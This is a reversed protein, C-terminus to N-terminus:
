DQHRNPRPDFIATQTTEKRVADFFGCWPFEGLGGFILEPLEQTETLTSGVLRMHHISISLGNVPQSCAVHFQVGLRGGFAFYGNGKQPRHHDRLLEHGHQVDSRGLRQDNQGMVADNEVVKISIPPFGSPRTMQQIADIPDEVFRPMGPYLPGATHHLHLM